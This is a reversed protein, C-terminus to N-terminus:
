QSVSSTKTSDVNLTYGINPVSKISVGHISLKKNLRHIHVATSDKSHRDNHGHLNLHHHRVPNGISKALTQVIQAETKTLPVIQGNAAFDRTDPYYRLTGDKVLPISTAETVWNHDQLIYGLDPIARINFTAPDVNIRRRLNSLNTRLNAPSFHPSDWVLKRYHDFPVVTNRRRTIVELM